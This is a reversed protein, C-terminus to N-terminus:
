GHITRGHLFEDRVRRALALTAGPADEPVFDWWHTHQSATTALEACEQCSRCSAVEDLAHSMETIYANKVAMTTELEDLWPQVIAFLESLAVTDAIPTEDGRPVLNYAQIWALLQQRQEPNVVLLIHSALM